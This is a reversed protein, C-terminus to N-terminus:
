VIDEQFEYTLCGIRDLVTWVQVSEEKGLIALEEQVNMKDKAYRFVQLQQRDSLVGCTDTAFRILRILVDEPLQKFSNSDRQYSQTTTKWRKLASASINDNAVLKRVAMMYRGRSGDDHIISLPPTNAKGNLGPDRSPERLPTSCALIRSVRLFKLATCWLQVSHVGLEKITNRQIKARLHEIDSMKPLKAMTNNPTGSSISVRRGSRDDSLRVNKKRLSAPSSRIEERQAYEAVDVSRSDETAASGPRQTESLELLRQADKTINENPLYVLGYCNAQQSYEDLKKTLHTAKISPRLYCPLAHRELAYSLFLAGVDTMGTNQFVVYPIARIGRWLNTAAWNGETM